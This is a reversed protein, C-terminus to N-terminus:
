GKMKREMEALKEAALSFSEVKTPTPEEAPKEVVKGLKLEGAEVGMRCVGCLAGKKSDKAVVNTCKPNACRKHKKHSKKGM